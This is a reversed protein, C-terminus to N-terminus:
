RQFGEDNLGKSLALNSVGLNSFEEFEVAKLCVAKEFVGLGKAKALALLKGGIEFNKTTDGFLDAADDNGVGARQMIQNKNIAPFDEPFKEIVHKDREGHAIFQKMVAGRLLHLVPYSPRWRPTLDGGHRLCVRDPSQM